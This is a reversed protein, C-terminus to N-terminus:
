CERAPRLHVSLAGLLSEWAPGACAQQADWQAGMPMELPWRSIGLGGPAETM